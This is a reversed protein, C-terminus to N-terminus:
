TRARTRGGGGGKALGWIQEARRHPKPKRQGQATNCCMASSLATRRMAREASSATGVILATREDSQPPITDVRGIWATRYPDIRMARKRMEDQSLGLIASADLPDAPDCASPAVLLTLREDIAQSFAAGGANLENMVLDALEETM